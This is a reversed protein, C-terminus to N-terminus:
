RALVRRYKEFSAAPYESAAKRLAEIRSCRDRRQVGEVFREFGEVTPDNRKELDARAMADQAKAVGEVQYAKHLEPYQRRAQEMAACKGLKPNRRRMLHVAANFDTPTTMDDDEDPDRLDTYVSTPASVDHLDAFPEDSADALERAPAQPRLRAGSGETYYAGGMHLNQPLPRDSIRSDRKTLTARAGVQAPRDVSSIESIVFERMIRRRQPM